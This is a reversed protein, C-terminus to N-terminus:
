SNSLSIPPKIKWETIIHTKLETLGDLLTQNKQKTVLSNEVHHKIMEIFSNLKTLYEYKADDNFISLKNNEVCHILTFVEPPYTTQYDYKQM